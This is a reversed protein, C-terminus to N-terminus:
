ALSCPALLSFDKEVAGNLWGFWVMFIVDVASATPKSVAEAKASAAACEPGAPVGAAALAFERTAMSLSM